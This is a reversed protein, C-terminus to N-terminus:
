CFATWHKVMTESAACGGPVNETMRAASRVRYMVSKARWNSERKSCDMHWVTAQGRRNLLYSSLRCGSKGRNLLSHMWHQEMHTWSLRREESLDSPSSLTASVNDLM